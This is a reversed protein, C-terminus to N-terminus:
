IRVTKEKSSMDEDDPLYEVRLLYPNGNYDASVNLVSIDIYPVKLMIEDDGYSEYMEIYRDKVSGARLHKPNFGIYLLRDGFSVVKDKEYSIYGNRYTLGTTPKITGKVAVSKNLGLLAWESDEEHLDYTLSVTKTRINPEYADMSVIEPSVRLEIDYKRYTAKDPELFGSITITIDKPAIIPYEKTLGNGVLFVKEEDISAVYMGNALLFDVENAPIGFEIGKYRFFTYDPVLSSSIGDYTIKSDMSSYEYLLYPLRDLTTGIFVKECEVTPVKAKKLYKEFKDELRLYYPRNKAKYAYDMFFMAASAILLDKNCQIGYVKRYRLHDVVKEINGLRYEM